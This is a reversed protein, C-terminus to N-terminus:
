RWRTTMILGVMMFGIGIGINWNGIGPVPYVSQTIYFIIIWFIGILIMAFMIVRYWLPTPSPFDEDSHMAEAVRRLEAEELDEDRISKSDAM